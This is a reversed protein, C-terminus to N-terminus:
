RKQGRSVPPGPMPQLARQMEHLPSKGQMRQTSDKQSAYSHRGPRSTKRRGPSGYVENAPEHLVAPMSRFDMPLWQSFTKFDVTAAATAVNVATM